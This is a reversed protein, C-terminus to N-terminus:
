GGIGSTLMFARVALGAAAAAFVLVVLIALALVLARGLLTRDRQDLVTPVRM